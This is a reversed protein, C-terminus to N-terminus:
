DTIGVGSGGSQQKLEILTCNHVSAGLEMELENYYIICDEIIATKLIKIQGRCKIDRVDVKGGVVLDACEIRPARVTGTTDIILCDEDNQPDSVSTGIVLGDVSDITGSVKLIGGFELGGHVTTGEAILNTFADTNIKRKFLKKFM